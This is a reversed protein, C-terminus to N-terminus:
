RTSRWASAESPCSPPPCRYARPVCRRRGLGTVLPIDAHGSGHDDSAGTRRDSLEGSREGAEGGGLETAEGDLAGELPGPERGLLDLVDEHAVHELGAGALDGGALGGDVGADGHAHGGGGDVLHAGRAHVGDVQGVEHDVGALGVDDDGAAHLGHGVGRVEEGAGPAAVPDAVLLDDVRHHVVAEPVLEVVDGHAGAGLGVAALLGLADAALLLVGEGGGRVLPGGGGVLVPQEVVLDDRDLDRLALAVRDDDGLVLADAAVGGGVRRALSRGAKSLAPLMVAPLAECIESPPAATM